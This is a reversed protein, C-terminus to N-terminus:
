LFRESLVRFVCHIEEPHNIFDIEKLEIQKKLEQWHIRKGGLVDRNDHKMRTEDFNFTVLYITVFQKTLKGDARNEFQKVEGLQEFFTESIELGLEEQIEIRATELPTTDHPIYGGGAEGWKGPNNFVQFSRQQIYVEGQLNVFWVHVSRCWGGSEVIQNLPIVQGTPVGTENYVDISEYSLFVKHGNIEITEEM